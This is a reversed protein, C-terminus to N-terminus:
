TSLYPKVALRTISQGQALSFRIFVTKNGTSWVTSSTGFNVHIVESSNIAGTTADIANHNGDSEGGVLAAGTGGTGPRGYALTQSCDAWGNWGADGQMWGTPGDGLNNPMAVWLGTFTGTILLDFGQIGASVSTFEFQCYQTNNHASYNASSTPFFGSSYNNKDATIAGGIIKAEYSDSIINNPNWSAGTTNMTPTDSNAGAACRKFNTGVLPDITSNMEDPVNTQTGSYLLYTTSGSLTHDVGNLAYPTKITHTGFATAATAKAFTNAKVDNSFVYSIPSSVGLNGRPISVGDFNSYTISSEETIIGTSIGVPDAGASGFGTDGVRNFYLQGTLNTASVNYSFAQNAPIHDVGSSKAAVFGTPNNVSGFTLSPNGPGADAEYWFSRSKIVGASHESVELTGIGTQYDTTKHHVEVYHFGLALSPINGFTSLSV